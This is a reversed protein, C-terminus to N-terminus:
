FVVFNGYYNCTGCSKIVESPSHTFKHARRVYSVMFTVCKCSLYQGHSSSSMLIFCMESLDGTEGNRSNLEIQPGAVKGCERTSTVLCSIWSKVGIVTNDLVWVWHQLSWFGEWKYWKWGHDKEECWNLCPKNRKQTDCVRRHLIFLGRSEARQRISVDGAFADEVRTNWDGTAKQAVDRCLLFIYKGWLMEPIADEWWKLALFPTPNKQCFSM